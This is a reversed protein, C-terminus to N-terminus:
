NSWAVVRTLEEANGTRAIRKDPTKVLATVGLTENLSARRHEVLRHWVKTM